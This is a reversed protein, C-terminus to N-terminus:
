NLYRRAIVTPEYPNRTRVATRMKTQEPNNLTLELCIRNLADQSFTVSKLNALITQKTSADNINSQYLLENGQQYVRGTAGQRTFRVETSGVPSFNQATALRQFVVEIGQGAEGQSFIAAEEAQIETSIASQITATTTLAVIGVLALSMVLEVLTFAKVYRRM